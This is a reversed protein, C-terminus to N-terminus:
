HKLWSYIGQWQLYCCENRDMYALFVYIKALLYIGDSQSSVWGLFAHYFDMLSDNCHQHIFFLSMM